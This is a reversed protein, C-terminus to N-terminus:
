KGRRMESIAAKAAMMGTIYGATYTGEPHNLHEAEPKTLAVDVGGIADITEILTHLNVRVYRDVDIKFNERVEATQMQAGDKAVRKGSEASAILCLSLMMLTALLFMMVRKM